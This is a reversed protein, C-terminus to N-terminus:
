NPIFSIYTLNVANRITGNYLSNQTTIVKQFVGGKGVSISNNAKVTDRTTAYDNVWINATQNYGQTGQEVTNLTFTYAGNGDTTTEYARTTYTVPDNSFNLYVKRNSVGFNVSTLTVVTGTQVQKINNAYVFGTVIATGTKLNNSSGSIVPSGIYNYDMQLNQGMALNKSVNSGQFSAYYGKRLQGNVLTDLTSNFGDFSIDANVGAANTRVTIAYNGLSDSKGYYLDAGQLSSSQYLESKNVKVVISIGSAPRKGGTSWSGTGNPVIYNRSLNGKLVM